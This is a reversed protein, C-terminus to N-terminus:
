ENLFLNIIGNADATTIGGDKNFDAALFNINSGGNKLYYNVVLNSDATTIANDGNADGHLVHDECALFTREYETAALIFAGLVKGETQKMSATVRTVDPGLLYYAASGDRNNSGGLGASRCSNIIHIGGNGDSVLFNEVFGKYAKKAVETYDADFLGLRHGKLYSAIFIASASSELYNYTKTKSIGAYSDAYFTGDYQLLQYWCGTAADARKALGAAVKNLYTRLTTYNSSGTQGAKQMDELVDVLALIYWGVARGWYEKSHYTKPDAWVKAYSDTPTASFAHWLLEKDADWLFDWCIQFQKTILDWDTGQKAIMKYDQCDNILQALLAPGMYQGDCWMQNVYSSKHWWGGEAGAVGNVHIAYGADAKRIGELAAAMRTTATQVTIANSYEAGDAFCKDAALRQLIPYLKVANLDDFNKGAKGNSSIDYKNGYYQVAYFWPKVNVKDNNKYFDVAEIVAKAVLGPVYDLAKPTGFEAATKVGQDNFTGFGIKSTNAYFSNLRSDIALKSYRATPEFTLPTGQVAPVTPDTAIDQILSKPKEAFLTAGVNGNMEEPLKIAPAVSYTYPVTVSGKSSPASKGCGIYNSSDWVYAIADTQSFFTTVSADFNNGEILFESNKRPNICATGNGKCTYYNNLMHIKGVRGMPMRARCGKGWNNFAFTTNLYGTTESDNSGVLNTNQHMYAHESYSFTCWSVTNFDSKQTIDFNGDMGDMFDCHDVWFHKSGYLSMLDSGSVDISGPGQLKLNRIIFNNCSRFFFIGSSRYAEKTDGTMEMIIKRTMYEAQESVTSGNPLTGGTGSSTSMGPVGADNLAKIIEPTAFWTTCIHAGNIGLLTKNQLSSFEMTKSVLFNGQSGDFVIVSYSSNKIASEIDSKMDDGTAKLVKVKSAAVANGNGDKVTGNDYIYGGGGTVNFTSTNTTRNTSTCFGFPKGLDYASQATVGMTVALLAMATALRSLFNKRM